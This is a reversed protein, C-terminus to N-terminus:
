FKPPRVSEQRQKDALQELAIIWNPPSLSLSAVNGIGLTLLTGDELKWYICPIFSNPCQTPNGLGFQTMVSNALADPTGNWPGANYSVDKVVQPSMYSTLELDINGICIDLQKGNACAVSNTNLAKCSLTILKAVDINHFGSFIADKNAPNNWAPYIESWTMGPRFGLVDRKKSPQNWLAYSANRKTIFDREEQSPEASQCISPQSGVPSSAPQAAVLKPASIGLLIASLGFLLLASKQIM